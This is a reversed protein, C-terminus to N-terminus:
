SSWGARSVSDWIPNAFLGLLVTSSLALLLGPLESVASSRSIIAQQQTAFAVALLRFLYASAGLTGIVIAAVFLWYNVDIAGSLLIWKSIFGGGPPLGVVAVGALAVSFCTVPLLKALGQLRAIEDHGLTTQIRGISLFLSSKAFAHTVAMLVLAGFITMYAESGRNAYLVPIFLTLYGIQAVTSWAALHKLRTAIWAQWAGLLIAAVALGGMIMVVADTLVPMFLDLWLRMILFFCAKVVLASLAASVPAPAVAHTTPLWFHVPFVAAKLM